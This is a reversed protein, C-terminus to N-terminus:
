VIPDGGDVVPDIVLVPDVEVLIRWEYEDAQRKMADVAASSLPPDFILKVKMYVYTKILELKLSDGIFDTWESNEDAIFGTTPGVGIQRLTSLVSNIHILLDVDFPGAVDGAGVLKRVVDLIGTM